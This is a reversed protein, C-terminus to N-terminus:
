IKTAWAGHVNCYIRVKVVKGGSPIAFEKEPKDGPQFSKTCLFTDGMVEIWKIYHEKEMPHPISGVKVKIGGPVKEIVPLHKEKGADASKEVLPTMPKKCCVLEGDGDQVVLVIKKCTDCSFLELMM